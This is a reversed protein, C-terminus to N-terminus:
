SGGGWPRRRTRQPSEGAVDVQFEVRGLLFPEVADVLSSMGCPLVLRDQMEIVQGTAIFSVGLRFGLTFVIRQVPQLSVRPRRPNQIGILVRGAIGAFLEKERHDIGGRRGDLLTHGVNRPLRRCSQVKRPTGNAGEVLQVFRSRAVLCHNM